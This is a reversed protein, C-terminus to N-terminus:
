SAGRRNVWAMLACGTGVFLLNALQGSLWPSIAGSDALHKATNAMLYFGVYAALTLLFGRARGGRRRSLALPTGVCSFAFPMLLQGFRWHLDSELRNTPEGRARALQIDHQLEAPSHEENTSRFTNKQFFTEGVDARFSGQEFELTTYDATAHTARHVSGNSLDFVVSALSDNAGVHGQEAVALVPSNPDRGDFLLVNSWQNGPDIKEAYLTFGPVEEHFTGARIDSVLNRRIIDQAVSRLSKMGWPQLTFALGAMVGSLMLGLVVPALFFMSPPMGLAQMAVLERDESLRGLGLLIALLLAIPIAQVVFQPALSLTFRAFDTVTVASGLLFDTGRLFAMVFFLVFLLAAWAFFPAVMERILYRRLM